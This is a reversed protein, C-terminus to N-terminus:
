IRVSTLIAHGIMRGIPPPVANGILRGLTARKPAQHEPVFEYDDPFGQLIAAERLSLARDQEPHGFRGSGFSHSLTTITPSPSDWDMRAYVNKYSHGTARRHCPARLESPWDLWTGGPKSARIRRLNMPSMGRAVHIPDTDSAAGAKLPALHSIADRVTLRAEDEVTQCPVEVYRQGRAAILVLRRRIQPVGFAQADRVNWAVTYGFERLNRVFEAFIRNSQLRPVNEMTVYHPKTTRVLRAFERLLPWDDDDSTDIGKRYPSFPQCPACGALVRICGQPWRRNLEAGTVSRVDKLVFDARINQEYPYQCAPDVDYGAVVRIGADKLGLSLGGAGCFLDIAVADRNGTKSSGAHSDEINSM